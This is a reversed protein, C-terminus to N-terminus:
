PHSMPTMPPPNRTATFMWWPWARHTRETSDALLQGAPTVVTPKASLPAILELKYYGRPARKILLRRPSKHARSKGFRLRLRRARPLKGFMLVLRQPGGPRAATASATAGCLTVKRSRRLIKQDTTFTMMRETEWEECSAPIPDSSADTGAPIAMSTLPSAWKCSILQRRNAACSNAMKSFICPRPPRASGAARCEVFRQSEM